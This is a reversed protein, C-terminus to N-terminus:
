REKLRPRKRQGGERQIEEGDSQRKAEGGRKPKGERQSKEKEGETDRGRQRVELGRQIGKKTEEGVALEM